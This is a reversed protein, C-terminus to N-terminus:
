AGAGLRENLYLISLTQNQLRARSLEGYGYFGTIMLDPGLADRATEIEEQIEDDLVYRRGASGLLLALGGTDSEGREELAAFSAMRTSLAIDELNTRMFRVLSEAALEGALLISGNAADMGTIARITGIEGQPDKVVSLPLALGAAPLQGACDGLFERYVDVAPRGDLEFLVNGAARTVKRVVGFPEGAETAGYGLVVSEGYFGVAVAQNDSIAGACITYTRSFSFDDGALAGAILVGEGVGERVGTLLASGNIGTGKCFILVGKLGEGRLPTVLNRGASLAAQDGSGLGVRSTRLRVDREFRVATLAAGGTQLADQAVHGAGSCGIVIGSKPLQRELAAALRGDAFAGAAGFVFVLQPALEALLSLEKEDEDATRLGTGILLQRTIM